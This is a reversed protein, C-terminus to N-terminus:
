VCMNLSRFDDLNKELSASVFPDDLSVCRSHVRIDAGVCSGGYIDSVVAAFFTTAAHFSFLVFQIFSSLFQLIMQM